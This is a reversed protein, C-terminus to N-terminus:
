NGDRGFEDYIIKGIRNHLLTADSAATFGKLFVCFLVPEKLYLIGADHMVDELGGTKHAAITDDPLLHPVLRNLMQKKLIALVTEMTEQNRYIYELLKRMDRVSTFNDAGRGRAEFDMMRRALVTDTLGLTNIYRNILSTGLEKILVNTATNDSLATMLLAYEYLTYEKGPTLERLIGSGEVIDDECLRVADEWKLIGQGVSENLCLLIPLKIISASPMVFDPRLVLEAGSELGCVAISAVGDFDECLSTIDEKWM